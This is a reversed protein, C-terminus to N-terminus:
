GAPLRNLALVLRFVASASMKSLMCEPVCFAESGTTLGLDNSLKSELHKAEHQQSMLLSLLHPRDHKSTCKLQTLGV